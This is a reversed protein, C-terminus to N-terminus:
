SPEKAIGPLSRLHASAAAQERAAKFMGETLPIRIQEGEIRIGQLQVRVNSNADQLYGSLVAGQPSTGFNYVCIGRRGFDPEKYELFMKSSTYSVKDSKHSIIESKEPEQQGYEGKWKVEGDLEV